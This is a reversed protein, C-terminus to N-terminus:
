DHIQTHAGSHAGSPIMTPTKRTIKAIAPIMEDKPIRAM